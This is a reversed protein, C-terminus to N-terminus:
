ARVTTPPVGQPYSHLAWGHLLGRFTFSEIESFSHRRPIVSPASFSRSGSRSVNLVSARSASNCTSLFTAGARSEPHRTPPGSYRVLAALVGATYRIYRKQPLPFVLDPGWGAASIVSVCPLPLVVEPAACVGWGVVRVGGVASVSDCVCFLLCLFSLPPSWESALPHPAGRVTTVVILTCLSGVVVLHVCSATQTVCGTDVLGVAIGVASTSAIM